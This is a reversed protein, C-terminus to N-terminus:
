ARMRTDAPWGSFGSCLNCGPDDLPCGHVPHTPDRPCRSIGCAPYRPALASGEHILCRAAPLWSAKYTGPYCPCNRIYLIGRRARYRPMDQAPLPRSDKYIFCRAAARTDPLTKQVPLSPQRKYILCRAPATDPRTGRLVGRCRTKTCYYFIQHPRYYEM